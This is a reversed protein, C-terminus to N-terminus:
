RGILSALAALPAGAGDSPAGDSAGQGKADMGDFASNAIAYPNGQGNVAYPNSSRSAAGKEKPQQHLDALQQGLAHLYDQSATAPQPMVQDVPVPTYAGQMEPAVTNAL